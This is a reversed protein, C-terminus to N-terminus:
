QEAEFKYGMGYVSRIHEAAGSSSLKKRLNKIHSYIHDYNDALDMDDGWLHEAIAGKSIVRNKNSIFYIFLEYETKTLEVPKDNVKVQKKGLDLVASGYEIINKGDFSRRRIVAAIRAALEPLHFPKALYDDAGSLLGEIKDQQANRASIIIVGESKNQAKLEKLIDLGNGGPLSIDLLICDYEYMSIKEMATRFDFAQECIFHEDQLYARIGASLEKEDEIILLKM